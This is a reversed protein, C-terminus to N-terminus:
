LLFFILGGIGISLVSGIIGFTLASSGSKPIPPTTIQPVPTSSVPPSVIPTTIIIVPTPIDTPGITPATTPTATPITTPTPSSQQATPSASLTPSVSPEIFQSGEAFVTFSQALTKLIGSADLTKITLTHKGPALKSDPRYQWNGSSDAQVTTTIEDTSQISIEVDNGPIAKGEFLPQQDKFEQATKPTIIQPAPTSSTEPQTPFGTIQASDTASSVSLPFSSIKFDYDKSLVVPPVLNAQSNLVSVHSKLTPNIIQIDLITDPALTLPGSLDKKLISGIELSYSGDIKLLTSLLQSGASSSAPSDSSLYAIAETPISGDELKVQGNVSTKAANDSVSSPATMVTYPGTSDTFTKDGSVISFFYKTSPTLNAIKIYHILHPTPTSSDRADLAVKSLATANEGYSVSGNIAGDTIYSVTYTTKSVNSIQVDKPTNSIAAKSGLLVANGSLWFITTLSLVLVLIGMGKPLRKNWINNKLNNM